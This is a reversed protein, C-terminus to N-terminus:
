WLFGINSGNNGCSGGCSWGYLIFLLIILISSTNLIGAGCAILWFLIAEWCGNNCGGFFGSNNGYGYNNCGCNNYGYYPYYSNLCCNCCDCCCSKKKKSM